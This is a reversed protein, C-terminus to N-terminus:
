SLMEAVEVVRSEEVTVAADALVPAPMREHGTTPPAGGDRLVGVFAAIEPAYAEANRTVFSDLLPPRAFGDANTFVTRSRRANGASTAGASGPVEIRHGYGYTARRADTITCHRGSTLARTAEAVPGAVADLRAVDTAAITQGHVRGIRGAGLLGLNLTM